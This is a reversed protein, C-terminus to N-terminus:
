TQHELNQEHEYEHLGLKESWSIEVDRYEGKVHDFQPVVQTMTRHLEITRNQSTDYGGWYGYVKPEDGLPKAFGLKIRFWHKLCRFWFKTRANM